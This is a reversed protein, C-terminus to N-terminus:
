LPIGAENAFWYTAHNIQTATINCALAIGEKNCIDNERLQYLIYPFMETSYGNFMDPAFLINKM